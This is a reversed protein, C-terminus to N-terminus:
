TSCVVVFWHRRPLIALSALLLYGFVLRWDLIM